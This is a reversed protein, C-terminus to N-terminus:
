GDLCECGLTAPCGSLLRECDGEETIWTLIKVLDKLIQQTQVRSINADDWNVLITCELKDPGGTGARIALGMENRPLNQVPRLNEYHNSGESGLGPAGTSRSDGSSRQCCIGWM